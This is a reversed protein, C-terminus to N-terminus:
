GNKDVGEKLTDVDTLQCVISEFVAELRQIEALQEEVSKKEDLLKQYDAQKIKLNRTLEGSYKATVGEVFDHLDSVAANKIKEIRSVINKKFAGYYKSQNVETYSETRKNFSSGTTYYHTETNKKKQEERIKAVVEPTLDPKIVTYNINANSSFEILTRDCEAVIEKQLQSEYQTFIDIKRFSIKELEDLSQSRSPDIGDIEKMYQEIVADAKAEIIGGTASYKKSIEDVTQRIKRKLNEISRNTNRLKNELDEPNTVKLKRNEINEKMDARIKRLVTQMGELFESLAIYQAKHAFLNLADDINSFRSLEKLSELYKTRDNGATFWAPLLFSDLRGAQTETMLYSSIEEVTMNQFKNYYLEVKSDVAIIQKPNIGPFQRLAETHIRKINEPTENAARTLILFKAGANRDASKTELFKRFSTAELAAGTLPKLFMIANANEIYEDTIKGLQGEANVGPTDIIEIGRMDEDDFPYQIEIKQVINRWNKQAELVYQKIKEAYEKAPLHYLNEQQLRQVWESIESMLIRDDKKPIIFSMNLVAVPIDRYNDDIAANSQLFGQIAEENEFAEERGDAYTAKLIFKEGYRIEVIASTCQKVDMPLIEKGLYANIFTSKGSKAEGAIMLLFRDQQINVIRKELFHLIDDYSTEKEQKVGSVLPLFKEYASLVREKYKSYDSIM